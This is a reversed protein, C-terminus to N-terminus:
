NINIRGTASTLSIKNTAGKANQLTLSGASSTSNPNFNACKGPFTNAIIAIGTPLRQVAGESAWTGATYCQLIYSNVGIEGDDLNVRFQTNGSVAKAQATRMISVIDRTASRLRYNPLWSGINPVLFVAMFAIIVFVVVLEILTVGRHNMPEMSM